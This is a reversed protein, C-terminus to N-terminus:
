IITRLSPNGTDRTVPSIFVILSDILIPKGGHIPCPHCIFGDKSTSHINSPCWSYATTVENKRQNRNINKTKMATKSICINSPTAIVHM